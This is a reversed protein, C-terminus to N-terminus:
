GLETHFRNQARELGEAIIAEVADAARDVFLPLERAEAASFPKLVFAAPDQRGPPRGIGLRVRLYDPSGLSTSVSRVGNHGGPGGGQKLRLTGFPLDLEDHVIMIQPVALKFFGRLSAVPGGSENMYCKPKALVVPVSAGGPGPLSGEIVDARGRHAKFKAGLRAALLDVVMFGANHRTAAYTPGPNGLGVVLVRGGSASM